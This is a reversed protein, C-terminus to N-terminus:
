YQRIYNGIRVAKHGLEPRGSIILGTHGKVDSSDHGAHMFM